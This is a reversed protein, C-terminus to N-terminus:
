NDEPVAIARVDLGNVALTIAIARNLANVQELTLDSGARELSVRSKYTAVEVPMDEAMAEDNVVEEFDLIKGIFEDWRGEMWQQADEPIPLAGSDWRNVTRPNVQLADSVNKVSLGATERLLRFTAGNM